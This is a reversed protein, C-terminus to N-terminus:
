PLSAIFQAITQQLPLQERVTALSTMVVEVGHTLIEVEAPCELAEALRIGVLKFLGDDGKQEGRSGFPFLGYQVARANYLHLLDAQTEEQEESDEEPCALRAFTPLATGVLATMFSKRLLSAQETSVAASFAASAVRDCTHILLILLEATAAQTKAEGTFPDKAIERAVQPCEKLRQWSAEAMRLLESSLNQVARSLREQLAPAKM